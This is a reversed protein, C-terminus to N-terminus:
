HTENLQQGIRPLSYGYVPVNHQQRENGAFWVYGKDTPNNRPYHVDKYQNLSNVFDAILPIKLWRLAYLNLQQQQNGNLAERYTQIERAYLLRLYNAISDDGGDELLEALSFDRLSLEDDNRKFSANWFNEEFDLKEENTSIIGAAQENNRWSVPIEPPALLEPPTGYADVMIRKYSNIINRRAMRDLGIEGNEDDLGAYRSRRQEGTLVQLTGSNPLDMELTVSGFGLPKGYGLKFFREKQIEGQQNRTTQTLLTLLAGLEEGTLNEVKITFRFESDIPIWSSISRNQGNQRDIETEDEYLRRYYEPLITHCLEPNWYNEDQWLQNLQVKRGGLKKDGSYGAQLKLIGDRQPVGEHDRIYFRVQSPKPNGLIALPIPEFTLPQVSTSDSIRVRGKWAGKGKQNVWGFVRDTPSLNDINDAPRISPYACDWPSNEYLERSIQVPYLATITNGSMKAYVFDGDCLTERAPNTHEGLVVGAEIPPNASGEHVAQYDAILDEYNKKVDPRVTPTTTRAPASATGNFFFREDHKRGFIKGSVVVYGEVVKDAVAPVPTANHTIPTVAHGAINVVSWFKFNRKSHQYQRITVGTQWTGNLGSLLERIPSNYMPLWAAYLPSPNGAALGTTGTFLEVELQNGNNRVRGPVLRPDAQARMGLRRSHQKESFVRYRSNTIAEYASSLMGKLATAPIHDLTDYRYHATNDAESGSLLVKSAPDTIFLPTKTRLVVPITGTYRESWYRSHDEKFKAKSPDRDGTFPDNIIKETNRDPTPIFNYPNHFPM